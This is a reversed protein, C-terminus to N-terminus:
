VSSFLLFFTPFLIFHLFCCIQSLFLFTLGACGGSQGAASVAPGHWSGAQGSLLVAALGGTGAEVGVRM